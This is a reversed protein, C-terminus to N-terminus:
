LRAKLGVAFVMNLTNCNAASSRGLDADFIVATKEVTILVATLEVAELEV